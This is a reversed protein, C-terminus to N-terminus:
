TRGWNPVIDCGKVAARPTADHIEDSRTERALGPAEGPLTGLGVIVAPEPGLDRPHNAVYSGAVHEQLVDWIEKMASNFVYEPIQGREPESAFPVHEARRLDPCGVLALAEEEQGVGSAWAISRIL